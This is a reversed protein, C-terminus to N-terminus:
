EAGLVTGSVPAVATSRGMPTVPLRCKPTMFPEMASLFLEKSDSRMLQIAIPVDRGSVSRTYRKIALARLINNADERNVDEPFKNALIFVADANEASSRKLDQGLSVVISNNGDILLPTVTDPM